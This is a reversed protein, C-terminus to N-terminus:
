PKTSIPQSARDRKRPNRATVIELFALAVAAFVLMELVFNRLAASDIEELNWVPSAGAQDTRVVLIARPWNRGSFWAVYTAESTSAIEGSQVQHMRQQTAPTNPGWGFQSSIYGMGSAHYSWGGIRVANRVVGGHRLFQDFDTPAKAAYYVM